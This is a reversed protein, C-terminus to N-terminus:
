LMQQIETLDKVKKWAIKDLHVSTPSEVAIGKSIKFLEIDNEDDGVVVCQNPAIDNKKCFDLFQELKKEAQKPHYIFDELSNNKDWVLATNAYWVDAGAKNAVIEAFMDMSGTILCVIYGKSKLNKFLEEAGDKLRWGGFIGAFRERGLEGSKKWLAILEAKAQKYSMKGAKFDDFIRMHETSSAGLGETLRTWSIDSMITGDIDFVVAKIDKLM